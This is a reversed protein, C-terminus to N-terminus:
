VQFYIDMCRKGDDIWRDMSGDMWGDLRKAIRWGNIWGDM